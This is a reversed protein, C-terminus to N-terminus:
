FLGMLGILILYISLLFMGLNKPKMPILKVPKLKSVLTFAHRELTIEVARQSISVIGDMRPM